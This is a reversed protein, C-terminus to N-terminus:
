HDLALAVAEDPNMKQGQEWFVDFVDTGLASRAAAVIEEYLQKEESELAAGLHELMAAAAGTLQASRTHNQTHLATGALGILNCAALLKEGIEWSLALSEAHYRHAAAYDDQSYAILGLNELAVIAGVKYGIERQLTLSEILFSCAAADDGLKHTIVGLNILSVAVGIKDGMERKIALSEELLARAKASEGRGHAVIGLSNLSVSTGRKDGIERQIALSETFLTSAREVNGQLRAVNGLGVLAEAMGRKDDLERNLALSEEYLASAAAYDCLSRAQAGLGHLALAATTKNNLARALELGETLVNRAQDHDGKHLWVTGIEVLTQGLGDRDDLAQWAQRAQELWDLSSALDGRLHLFMGLALYSRALADQKDSLAPHLALALAAHYHSEAKDWLGMMELVAGIQMHLDFQKDKGGLLPLLKEYNELAVANRYHTRAADGAKHFYERQKDESGSKEAHYVLEDYHSALNDSYLKEYAELALQHLDRLRSRLQMDYAADRLLVHKFLYRIETLASWIQEREADDVHAKMDSRLMQSLLRVDFERGLVAATQVVLKVQASLRDLRAILMASLSDPLDSIATQLHWEGAQQELAGSEQLYLLLQQAFFPVSQSRAQLFAFFTDDLSGGLQNEALSRMEGSPLHTLELTVVPLRKDLMLIPKSGDDAYRSTILLLAKNQIQRTLHSLLERSAEDLWHADELEIVVPRVQSLALFFTSLATITNEYRLKPDPLQEYLSDPWHLNLLAGLFSQTRILESHLSKPISAMSLTHLNAEFRSRNVEPAVEQSQDFYRQLIYIFPNFARRSISDTQGALWMVGEGLAERLAFSLRSKGMGPDGYILAAAAQGELASKATAILTQLEVFRGVMPGFFFNESAVKEREVQYTLVAAFFGKYSFKGLRTFVFKPNQAVRGSALTQGWDARMMLRAALNVSNGLATVGCREPIGVRGFYMQGITVGCRIATGYKESLALAFQLARELDNEHTNPAGFFVLCNGGKDGFDLHNFYGERADVERLVDIMFINLDDRSFGRFSIFVCALQRFEGSISTELVARPYFAAASEIGYEPFNVPPLPAERWTLLRASGDELWEVEADIQVQLNASLVIDGKNCHHEAQACGDIALGSFYYARRTATGLLGCEVAGIDLGIKATLPFDEAPTHIIRNQFLGQIHWAAHLASAIHSTESNESVATKSFIATFADGAFGSIYGGHAYIASIVPRFTTNVVDALIEAGIKGQAMLAETIPAFGSIDLFLTVAQFISHSEPAQAINLLPHPIVYNM